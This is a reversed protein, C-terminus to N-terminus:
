RIPTQHPVMKIVSVDDKEALGDAVEQFTTTYCINPFGAYCAGDEQNKKIVKYVEESDRLRRIEYSAYHKGEESLNKNALKVATKKGSGSPGYLVVLPSKQTLLANAKIFKDKAVEVIKDASKEIDYLM